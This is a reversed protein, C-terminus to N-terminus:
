AEDRLPDAARMRPAQDVLAAAPRRGLGPKAGVDALVKLVQGAGPRWRGDQDRDAKDGIVHLHDVVQVDLRGLGGLPHAQPQDPRSGGAGM